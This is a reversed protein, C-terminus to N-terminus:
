SNKKNKYSPYKPLRNEYLKPPPLSMNQDVHIRIIALSTYM